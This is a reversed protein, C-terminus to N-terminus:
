SIALHSNADGTIPLDIADSLVVEKRQPWSLTMFDRLRLMRRVMELGGESGGRVGGGEVFGSWGGTTRVYGGEGDVALIWGPLGDLVEWGGLGWAQCGVLVREVSGM